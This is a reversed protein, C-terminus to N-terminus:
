GTVVWRGGVRKQTVKVPPLEVGKGWSGDGFSPTVYVERVDEQEEGSKARVLQDPTELVAAGMEDARGASVLWEILLVGKSYSCFAKGLTSLWNAPVRTNVKLWPRSTRLLEEYCLFEPPPGTSYLVSSPHIYVDEGHVGLARYPVHAATAHHKASVRTSADVLDKRVAVQDVFSSLVLQRLM